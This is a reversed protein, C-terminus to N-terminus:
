TPAKRPNGQAAKERDDTNFYKKTTSLTITQLYLLTRKSIIRRPFCFPLFFMEAAHSASSSSVRNEPLFSSWPRGCPTSLYAASFFSAAPGKLWAQTTPIINLASPVLTSSSAQGRSQKNHQPLDKIKAIKDCTIGVRM